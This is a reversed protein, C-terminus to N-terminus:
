KKGGETAKKGAASAVEKGQAVISKNQKEDPMHGGKTPLIAMKGNFRHLIGFNHGRRGGVGKRGGSESSLPPHGGSVEFGGGSEGFFIFDVVEFLDDIGGVVVWDEEAPEASLGFFGGDNDEVSEFSACLAVGDSGEGGIEGFESPGDGCRM